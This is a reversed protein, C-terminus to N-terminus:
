IDFKQNETIDRIEEITCTDMLLKKDPLTGKRLDIYDKYSTFEWEEPKVTLESRMPNQHIYFILSIFHKEDEIHKAKYHAQFLSGHRDYKKNIAKTYSSQFTQMARSIMYGVDKLNKLHGVGQIHQINKELEKVKVLFHFHTPM